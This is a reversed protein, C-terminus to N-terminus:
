RLFKPPCCCGSSQGKQAVSRLSDSSRAASSMADAGRGLVFSTYRCVSVGTLAEQVFSNYKHTAAEAAVNALLGGPEKLGASKVRYPGGESAPAKTRPKKQNVRYFKEVAGAEHVLQHDGTEETEKNLWSVQQWSPHFDCGILVM